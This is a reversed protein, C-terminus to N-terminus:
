PLRSASAAIEPEEEEEDAEEDLAAEEEPVAVRARTAAPALLDPAIAETWRQLIPDARLEAFVRERETEPMTPDVRALVLDGLTEDRVPIPLEPNRQGVIARATALDGARVAQVLRVRHGLRSLFPFAPWERAVLELEANSEDVRATAALAFARVGHLEPLLINAALRYAPHAEVLGIGEEARRRAEEFSAREEAIVALGLKSAARVLPSQVRAASEYVQAAEDHLGRAVLVEGARLRAAARDASQIRFVVLGTAALALLGLFLDVGPGFVGAGAGTAAHSSWDATGVVGGAIVLWVLVGFAVVRRRATPTARKQAERAEVVARRAEETAQPAPVDSAAVVPVTEVFAAASPAMRSVWDSVASDPAEEERRAARRYVSGGALVMRRFARVLARERPLLVHTMRAHTRLLSALADLDNDRAALVMRALAARGLADAGAAPANEAADADAAAEAKEGMSAHALARFALASARLREEYSRSRFSTSGSLAETAASVASKGDGRVLALMARQVWLARRVYGRASKEAESLLATAEAIEGRAARDVALNNIHVLRLDRAARLGLWGYFAGLVGCGIGFLPLGVVGIIAALVILLVSVVLTRRIQPNQAPRPPTTM